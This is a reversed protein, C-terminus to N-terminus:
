FIVDSYIKLNIMETVRLGCSYLTEILAKNRIGEPNSLDIASIIKEIEEFSLIDPLKRKTKPAELLVTPDNKCIQELLCYKYFSKIGSIIRAQTTASLGLEHIWKLFLQLDDLAIDAPTKATNLSLFQTLKEIDSLYAEVSNNSLSKELQLYAKFGKKYPEWM